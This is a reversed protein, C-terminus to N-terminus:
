KEYNLRKPTIVKYFANTDKFEIQKELYGDMVCDVVEYNYVFGQVLYVYFSTPKQKFSAIEDKFPNMNRYHEFIPPESKLRLTNTYYMFKENPFKALPLLWWSLDNVFILCEPKEWYKVNAEKPLYTSDPVFFSHSNIGSRVIVYNTTEISDVLYFHLLGNEDYFEPTQSFGIIRCLFCLILIICKKM